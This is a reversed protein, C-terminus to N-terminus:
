KMPGCNCIEIGTRRHSTIKALNNLRELGIIKDLFFFPKIYRVWLTILILYSLAYLAVLM